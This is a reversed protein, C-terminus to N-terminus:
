SGLGWVRFGLGYVPCGVRAIGTTLQGYRPRESVFANVVACLRINSVVAYSWRTYTQCWVFTM